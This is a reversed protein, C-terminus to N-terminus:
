YRTPPDSQPAQSCRVRRLLDFAEVMYRHNKGDIEMWMSCAKQALTPDKSQLMERIADLLVPLVDEIEARRKDVRDLFEEMLYILTAPTRNDTNTSVM